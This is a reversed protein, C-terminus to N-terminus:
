LAKVLKKILKKVGKKDLMAFKDGITFQICSGNKGGWFRVINLDNPLDVHEISKIKGLETSM